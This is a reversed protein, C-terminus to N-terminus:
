QSTPSGWSFPLGRKPSLALVISSTPLSPSCLICEPTIVVPHVQNTKSGCLNRTSSGLPESAVCAVEPLLGTQRHHWLARYARYTRPQYAYPTREARPAGPPCAARHRQYTCCAPSQHRLGYPPGQPARTLMPHQGRRLQLGLGPDGGPHDLRIRVLQGHRSLGQQRPLGGGAHFFRHYQLQATVVLYYTRNPSTPRNGPRAACSRSSTNM